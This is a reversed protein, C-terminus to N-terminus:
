NADATQWFNAKRANENCLALKGEFVRLATLAANWKPWAWRGLENEIRNKLAVAADDVNDKEPCFKPPNLSTNGFKIIQLAAACKQVLNAYQAPGPIKSEESYKELTKVIVDIDYNTTARITVSIGMELTINLELPIDNFLSKLYLSKDATDVEVKLSGQDLVWSSLNALSTTDPEFLKNRSEEVNEQLEKIAAQEEEAQKRADDLNIVTHGPMQSEKTVENDEISQEQKSLFDKVDETNIQSM